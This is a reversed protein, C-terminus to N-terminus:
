GKRYFYFLLSGLFPMFFCVAFWLYKAPKSYSSKVIEITSIILIVVFLILFIYYYVQTSM